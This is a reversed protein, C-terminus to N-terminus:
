PGAHRLDRVGFFAILLGAAVIVTALWFTGTEGIHPITWSAVLSGITPLGAGFVFWFWGVSSGRQHAPTATNLWVLFAYAFFPYGIGRLAYAVIALWTVHAGIGVALFVIELVVWAIGGILMVRRPGLISSLTGAFWSGIAVFIGYLSITIAAANESLGPQEALFTSLYNSEVGDGIMFLLVGVFGLFLPAPIGVRDLLRAAANGSRETMFCRGQNRPFRM